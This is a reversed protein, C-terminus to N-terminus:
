NPYMTASRHLTVLPRDNGGYSPSSSTGRYSSSLSLLKDLDGFKECLQDMELPTASITDNLIIEIFRPPIRFLESFSNTSKGDDKDVVSNWLHVYNPDRTLTISGDANRAGIARNNGDSVTVGDDELYGVVRIAGDEESVQVTGDKTVTISERALVPPVSSSYPMSGYACMYFICGLAWQDRFWIFGPDDAVEKHPLYAPSGFYTDSSMDALSGICQGKKLKGGFITVDQLLLWDDCHALGFDILQLFDGEENVLVNDPKLDFHYIGKSHLFTVVQILLSVIRALKYDDIGDKRYAEHRNPVKSVSQAIDILYDMLDKGGKEFYLGCAPSNQFKCAGKFELILNPIKAEERIRYMSLERLVSAIGGRDNPKKSIKIISTGFPSPYEYIDSQGSTVNMKQMDAWVLTQLPIVLPDKTTNNTIFGPGCALKIIDNVDLLKIVPLTSLVTEPSTMKTNNMEEQLTKLHDGDVFTDFISKDRFIRGDGGFLKIDNELDKISPRRYQLRNLKAIAPWM